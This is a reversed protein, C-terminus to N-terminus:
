VQHPGHGLRLGLQRDFQGPSSRQRLKALTGIIRRGPSFPHGEARLAENLWPRSRERGQQHESSEPPLDEGDSETMGQLEEAHQAM